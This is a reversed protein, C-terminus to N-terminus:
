KDVDSVLWAVKTNGCNHNKKKMSNIDNFILLDYMNAYNICEKSLNRFKNVYM